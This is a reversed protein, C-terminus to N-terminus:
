IKSHLTDQSKQNPQDLEDAVALAHTIGLRQYHRDITTAGKHILVAAICRIGNAVPNQLCIQRLSTYRGQRLHAPLKSNAVSSLQNLRDIGTFARIAHSLLSSESRSLEVM